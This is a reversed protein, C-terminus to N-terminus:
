SMVADISEFELNSTLALANEVLSVLQHGGKFTVKLLETLLLIM